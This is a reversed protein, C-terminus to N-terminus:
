SLMKWTGTELEDRASGLVKNALIVKAVPQAHPQGPSGVPVPQEALM